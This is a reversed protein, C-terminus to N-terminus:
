TFKRFTATSTRALSKAVPTSDTADMRHDLEEQSLEVGNHSALEKLYRAADARGFRNYACLFNRRSTEDCLLDVNARAVAEPVYQIAGEGSYFQKRVADQITPFDPQGHFVRTHNAMRLADRKPDIRWSGDEGQQWLNDKARAAEHDNSAFQRMGASRRINGAVVVAAAEDILLCIETSTLKRGHANNLIEAMKPFIGPLKM